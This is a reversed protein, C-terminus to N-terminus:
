IERALLSVDGRDLGDSVLLVIAARGLLRRGWDHNFTKLAEGLRTGGGWDHISATAQDLSADVDGCLIQRTIRTLRTGFVVVKVKDLCNGIVYIFKLLLRSYSEM